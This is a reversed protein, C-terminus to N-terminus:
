AAYCRPSNCIVRCFFGLVLFRLFQFWTWLFGLRISGLIILNGVEAFLRKKCYKGSSFRTKLDGLAWIEIWSDTDFPVHFRVRFCCWIELGRHGFLKWFPAWLCALIASFAVRSGWTDKRSSGLEGSTGALHLFLQCPHWFPPVLCGLDCNPAGFIVVNKQKPYLFHKSFLCGSALSGACM